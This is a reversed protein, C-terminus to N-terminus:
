TTYMSTNLRLHTQLHGATAGLSVGIKVEDSLPTGVDREYKAIEHEWADFSTEFDKENFKVRLLASLAGASKAPIPLSYRLHLRRWTEFGNATDNQLVLVRPGPSATFGMLMHHLNRSLQVATLQPDPIPGEPLLEEYDKLDSDVIHEVMSEAWDMLTKYRTNVTALFSKFLVHWEEWENTKGQFNEPQPIKLQGLTTTGTAATAM